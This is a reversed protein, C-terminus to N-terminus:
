FLEKSRVMEQFFPILRQEDSRKRPHHYQCLTIGNKLEYRLEPFDRWPLIHHVINYGSCKQGKFLCQNNDRKKCQRVWEQYASDNRKDQKKRFALGGRWCPNNEETMTKSYCGKCKKASYSTLQKGCDICKPKGGKWSHNKEGKRAESQKRRTEESVPPPSKRNPYKLGLHGKRINNKAEETRKKGYSPHKTKDKFRERIKKRHEETRKYVGSPM